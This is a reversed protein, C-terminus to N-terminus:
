GQRANAFLSARCMLEGAQQRSAWLTGPTGRWAFDCVVQDGDVILDDGIM